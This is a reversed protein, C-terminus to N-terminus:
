CPDNGSLRRKRVPLVAHKQKSFYKDDFAEQQRLSLVFRKKQLQWVGRMRKQVLVSESFKGVQQFEDICIVIHREQKQAIREALGLVEEPSYDKATIGLSFSFDM